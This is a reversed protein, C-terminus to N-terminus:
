WHTGPLLPTQSNQMKLLPSSCVVIRNTGTCGAPIILNMSPLHQQSLSEQSLSKCALIGQCLRSAHLFAFAGPRYYSPVAQPSMTDMNTGHIVEEFGQTAPASGANPSGKPLTKLSGSVGTGAHWPSVPLSAPYSRPDCHPDQQSYSPSQRRARPLCAQQYVWCGPDSRRLIVPGFSPHCSACRHM